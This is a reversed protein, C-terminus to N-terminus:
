VKAIDPDDKNRLEILKFSKRRAAATLIMRGTKCKTCQVIDVNFKELVRISVPVKIKSPLPPLKMSSRIENMRKTKCQNRLYGAHRIKVFRRPLIHQEYRRLFEEKSLTM